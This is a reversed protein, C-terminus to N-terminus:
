ADGWASFRGTIPLDALDYQIVIPMVEDLVQAIKSRTTVFYLSGPTYDVKEVVQTRFEVGRSALFNLAKKMQAATEDVTPDEARQSRLKPYDTHIKDRMLSRLVALLGVMETIAVDIDTEIM